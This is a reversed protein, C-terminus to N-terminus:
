QLAGSGIPMRHLALFVEAAHILSVTHESAGGRFAERRLTNMASALELRQSCNRTEREEDLLIILEDLYRCTIARKESRM